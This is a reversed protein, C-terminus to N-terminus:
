SARLRQAPSRTSYIRCATASSRPKLRTSTFYEQTCSSSAISNKRPRSKSKIPKLQHSGRPIIPRSHPGNDSGVSSRWSTRRPGWQVPRTANQLSVVAKKAASNDGTTSPVHRFTM